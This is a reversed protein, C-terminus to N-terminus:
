SLMGRSRCALRRERIRACVRVNKWKERVRVRPKEERTAGGDKKRGRAGSEGCYYAYRITSRTGRDHRMPQPKLVLRRSAISGLCLRARPNQCASRQAPLADRIVIASDYKFKTSTTPYTFTASKAWAYALKGRHASRFILISKIQHVTLRRYEKETEKM